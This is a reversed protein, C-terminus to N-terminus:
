EENPDRPSYNVQYTSLNLDNSFDRQKQETNFERLKPVELTAFKGNKLPLNTDVTLKQKKFVSGAKLNKLSYNRNRL